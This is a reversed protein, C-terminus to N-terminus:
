KSSKSHDNKPLIIPCFCSFTEVLFSLFYFYCSKCQFANYNCGHICILYVNFVLLEIQNMRKLEHNFGFSFITKKYIIDRLYFLRTELVM